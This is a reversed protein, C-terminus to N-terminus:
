DVQAIAEWHLHYLDDYTSGGPSAAAPMGRVYAGEKTIPKGLKAREPNLLTPSLPHRILPTPLSCITAETNLCM